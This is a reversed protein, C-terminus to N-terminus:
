PKPRVPANREADTLPRIRIDRVEGTTEYTAFGLPQCDRCEIRTSVKRDKIDADVVKESDIWAAIRSKTVRIRVRYWRGTRFEKSHYTDNESADAGNLSSLGVVTGGWGGLVLSCFSDGVPFTATAFFDEGAVKRGEFALEYDTKPLDKLTSVVGTMSGGKEMIVVGEAVKVAGPKFFDCPKWGDLTKGDFLKRWCKDDAPVPRDPDAAPAPDASLVLALAAVFASPM